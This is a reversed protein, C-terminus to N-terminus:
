KFRIQHYKPSDKDHLHARHKWLDFLLYMPIGFAYVVMGVVAITVYVTHEEEWCEISFDRELMEGVGEVNFCRLSTFVKTTLSPYLLSLLTLLIFHGRHEKADMTTRSPTKSLKMAVFTALKTTLVCAIPTAVHIGLKLGFPLSMRCSAHPLLFSLDLNVFGITQSATSFDKPWSVSNFTVTVASVIQAWSILISAQGAIHDKLTAVDDDEAHTETKLVVLLVTFFLVVCVGAFVGLVSGLNSGGPCHVCANGMLLYNTACTM